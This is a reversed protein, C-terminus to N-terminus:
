TNGDEQGIAKENINPLSMSYNTDKDQVPSCGFTLMM